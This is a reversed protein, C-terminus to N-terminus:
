DNDTEQSDILNIYDCLKSRNNNVDTLLLMPYKDCVEALPTYPDKAIRDALREDSDNATQYPRRDAYHILTGLDSVETEVDKDAATDVSLMLTVFTSTTALEESQALSIMGRAIQKRNYSELRKWFPHENQDHARWNVSSHSAKQAAHWEQSNRLLDYTDQVLADVTVWGPEDALKEAEAKKVAILEFDEWHYKQLVRIAPRLTKPSMTDERDKWPFSEWRHIIVYVGQKGKYPVGGDVEEWFSESEAYANCTDNLKYGKVTGRKRRAAPGGDPRQPRNAARIAKLEAKTEDSLDLESALKLERQGKGIVALVSKLAKKTTATILILREGSTMEHRVFNKLKFDTGTLNDIILVDNERPKFRYTDGTKVCPRYEGKIYKEDRIYKVMRVDSLKRVDVEDEIAQGHWKPVGTRCGGTLLSFTNDGKLERLALRADWVSACDNVTKVFGVMLAEQVSDLHSGLYTEMTTNIELDERSPTPSLAGVKVDLIIGLKAWINQSAESLKSLSEVPIPYDVNGMRVISTPVRDRYGWKDKQNDIVSWGDGTHTVVEEPFSLEYGEVKYAQKFAKLVHAAETYFEDFDKAEVRFSVELGNAAETDESATLTTSPVGDEDRFCVYTKKEGNFWSIVNFTQTYAYPAKSGLGFGGTVNDTGARTSAGFNQYLNLVDEEALGLGEDTVKFYPEMGNPMTVLFPGTNGSETHSDAANCCLERIAARIKNRYLKDALLTFMADNCIIKARTQKFDGSM